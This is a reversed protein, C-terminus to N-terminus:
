RARKIIGEGGTEGVWGREGRWGAAVTLSSGGGGGGWTRGKRPDVIISLAFFLSTLTPSRTRDRGRREANSVTTLYSVSLEHNNAM